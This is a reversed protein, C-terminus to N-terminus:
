SQSQNNVKNRHAAQRIRQQLERSRYGYILPILSVGLNYIITTAIDLADSHLYGPILYSDMVVPVSFLITQAAQLTLTVCARQTWLRGARMDWCLLCFCALITLSCLPVVVAAGVRCYLVLASSGSLCPTLILSRCRPLTFNVQITNLNLGLAVSSLVASLTWIAAVTARKRQACMLLEYHLPWKVAVVRDVALATSLFLDVLSCAQNVACFILCQTVPIGERSKLLVTQITWLLQQLNVCLLLHTLLLFRAHRLLSPSRTIVLLLPFGLVTNLTCSVCMSVMKVLHFITSNIQAQAELSTVNCHIDM